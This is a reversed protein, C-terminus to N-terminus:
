PLSDRELGKLTEQAQKATLFITTTEGIFVDTVDLTIKQTASLELTREDLLRRILDPQSELLALDKDVLYNLETKVLKQVKLKIFEDPADQVTVVLKKVHRVRQKEAHSLEQELKQKDEALQSCTDRCEALRLYLLDLDHGRVALLVSAGFLAGVLLTAFFRKNNM